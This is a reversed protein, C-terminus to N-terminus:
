QVLGTGLPLTLAPAPAGPQAPAPKKAATAGSPAAAATGVTSQATATLVFLTFESLKWQDDPRIFLKHRGFHGLYIADASEPDNENLLWRGHLRRLRPNTRLNTKHGNASYTYVGYKDQMCIICSPEHLFLEDPIQTQITIKDCDASGGGPQVIETQTTPPSKSLDTTTKQTQPTTVPSKFGLEPCYLAYAKDAKVSTYSLTQPKRVLPYEDFFDADSGYGLAYAYLARLRRLEDGDIIPQYSWSQSWADSATVSGAFGARTSSAQHQIATSPAGSITRVTQDLVTTAASLPTTVTPNVSYTTSATGASLDIHAPLSAPNDFFLSLNNLVQETQLNGVTSALDLTNNNLQTSACGSLLVGLACFTLMGRRYEYM